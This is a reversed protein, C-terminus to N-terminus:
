MPGLEDTVHRVVLQALATRNNKRFPVADRIGMRSRSTDHRMVLHHADCFPQRRCSMIGLTCASAPGGAPGDSGFQNCSPLVRSTGGHNASAASINPLTSLTAEGACAVYQNTGPCM